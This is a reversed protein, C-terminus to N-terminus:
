VRSSNQSMDTFTFQASLIALPSRGTELNTVKYENVM